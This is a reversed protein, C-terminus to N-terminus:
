HVKIGSILGFITQHFVCFAAFCLADMLYDILSFEIIFQSSFLNCSIFLQTMQHTCMTQWVVAYEGVKLVLAKHVAKLQKDTAKYRVDQLGLIAYHDNEKWDAIKIKHLNVGPKLNSVDIEVEEIEEEVIEQETEIGFNEQLWNEYDWGCTEVESWILEPLKM